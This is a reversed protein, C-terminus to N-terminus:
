LKGRAIGGAPLFVIAALDALAAYAAMSAATNGTSACAVRRAGLARARSVGVAMGRDKFSGTPNEGEHKLRLNPLGAWRGVRASAYLPTNGESHVVIQAEPVGGAAILERYRWVGSGDLGDRAAWREGFRGRLVEGQERSLRQRISLLGGCDCESRPDELPYERGCSSCHVFSSPRFVLPSPAPVADETRPGQDKTRPGETPRM